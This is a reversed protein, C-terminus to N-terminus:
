GGRIPPHSRKGAIFRVLWGARASQLLAPGKPGVVQM